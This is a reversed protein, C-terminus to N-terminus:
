ISSSQRESASRRGTSSTTRWYRRTSAAARATSGFRYVTPHAPGPLRELNRFSSLRVSAEGRTPCAFRYSTTLADYM